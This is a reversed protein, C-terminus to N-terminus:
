ATVEHVATALAEVTEPLVELFQKPRADRYVLVWLDYDSEVVLVQRGASCFVICVLRLGQNIASLVSQPAKALLEAGHERQLWDAKSVLPGVPVLLLLM